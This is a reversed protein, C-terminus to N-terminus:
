MVSARASSSRRTTPFTSIGAGEALESEERLEKMKAYVTDATEIANSGPLQLYPIAVAAPRQSLRECQLGGGGTRHPRHRASVDQKRRRRGQRDDGPVAGPEILRGQANVTLQFDTTGAPLPQGGVIGAAVQVNQEQVASVVDGVTINRAALKQPDLWIRMSYDRAGFLFIDGVGPLRALPDRVQQLAYNSIYLQSYRNDPSYLQVVLTIDPSSKKVTM